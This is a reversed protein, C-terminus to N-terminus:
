HQVKKYPEKKMELVIKKLERASGSFGPIGAARRM